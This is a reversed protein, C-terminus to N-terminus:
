RSSRRRKRAWRPKEVTVGQESLIRRARHTYKCDCRLPDPCRDIQSEAVYAVSGCTFCFGLHEGPEDPNCSECSLAVPPRTHPDDDTAKVGRRLNCTACLPRLNDSSDAGGQSHPTIHDMHLNGTDGCLACAQGDRAYVFARVHKYIPRRTTTM